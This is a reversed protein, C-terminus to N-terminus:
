RVEGVLSHKKAETIRVKVLERRIDRSSEINVVRNWLDRGRFHLNTGGQRKSITEILVEEEKGVVQKYKKQTIKEQLAQLRILREQKVEEPVKNEMKEARTGPRDSYKFSYANEFEVIQLVELTQKFDEETEGPFGVILDTTFSIDPRALRLKEILDLYRKKTYKRGMIKLIRDSGVQLPLHLHPCLVELEGFLRIVELSLDKPHSTTFRLRKLGHILAVERLLQAFSTGDGYKDQGYSNVNQGLLTIEKAGREVLTKCETLVEAKFRSKQRGRTFPVICYACFNDCGQMINVFVSVDAKEPFVKEREPYFDEFSLLSIRKHPFNLLEEIKDPVLYLGDTGFVLRVYPFREFFGEGIQQGVCGGVGVFFSPNQEWKKRFRGIESYVKQEPKERVSCTNLLVFDAEKEKLTLTFGRKQLSLILWNSDAVNMQCGFTIVSFKM